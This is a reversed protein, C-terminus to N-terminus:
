RYARLGPIRLDRARLGMPLGKLPLLTEALLVQNQEIEAVVSDAFVRPAAVGPRRRKRPRGTSGAPPSCCSRARGGSPAPEFAGSLSRKAAQFLTEPPTFKATPESNRLETEYHVDATPNM